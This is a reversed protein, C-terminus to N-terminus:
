DDHGEQWPIRLCARLGSPQNTELSFSQQDGYLHQLRQRTNVLGVGIGADPSANANEASTLGPGNDAVCLHVFQDRRTVSVELTGGEESPGIAYKIANEVLPQLILSPVLADLASQDIDKVIKLRSGFRVAEIDLYLDLADLEKRLPVQNKPDNDLTYRLFNSLSVVTQNATDNSKDLILTSIANLTNFLFHPNLQYRLMKLQAEHAATNARLTQETQEQLRQYYRIGFYLGAWCLLLYFSSMVGSFHDTFSTIEYDEVWIRYLYNSLARWALALGFCVALTMSAITFGSKLWLWRCIQRLPLSLLFGAFASGLVLVMYAPPKQYNLAGLFGTAAFGGWGLLNLTWFQVNRNVLLQTMM